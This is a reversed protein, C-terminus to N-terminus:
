HSCKMASLHFTAWKQHLPARAIGNCNYQIQVKGSAISMDFQSKCVWTLPDKGLSRVWFTFTQIGSQNYQMSREKKRMLM